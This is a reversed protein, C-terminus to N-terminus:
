MGSFRAPMFFHSLNTVANSLLPCFRLAAQGCKHLLGDKVRRIAAERGIDTMSIIKATARYCVSGAIVRSM